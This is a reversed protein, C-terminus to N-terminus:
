HKQCSNRSDLNGDQCGPQKTITVPSPLEKAAVSKHQKQCRTTTKPPTLLTGAAELIQEQFKGLKANYEMAATAM